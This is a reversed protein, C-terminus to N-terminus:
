NNNGDKDEEKDEINLQIKRDIFLQLVKACRRTGVKRFSSYNIIWNSFFIDKGCEEWIDNFVLKPLYRMMPMGLKEGNGLLEFIKKDIRNNSVYKNILMETDNKAHKPPRGMKDGHDEKFEKTRHKIFIQQTYNKYMVGEARMKGYITIPMEEDTPLKKLESAKMVGIDPVTKLGIQEFLSRSFPWELWKQGEIGWVDFGLFIPMNAFDYRMTHPTCSEGFFIYQELDKLTHEDLDNLASRVHEICRKWQKNEDDQSGHTRKHSGTLLHGDQIMFRFNAGDIKEQIYLLDNPDRLLLCAEEYGVASEDLFASELRRIKPYTIFLEM